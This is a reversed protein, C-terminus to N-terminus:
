DVEPLSQFLKNLIILDHVREEDYGNYEHSGYTIFKAIRKIEKATLMVNIEKKTM